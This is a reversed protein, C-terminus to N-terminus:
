QGTSYLDTVLAPMDNSLDYQQKYNALLSQLAQARETTPESLYEAIERNMRWRWTELASEQM